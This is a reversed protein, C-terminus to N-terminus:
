GMGAKGVSKEGARRGVTDIGNGGGNKNRDRWDFGRM